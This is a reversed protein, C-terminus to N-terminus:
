KKKRNKPADAYRRERGDVPVAPAPPYGLEDLRRQIAALPLDPNVGLSRLHDRLLDQVIASIKTKARPLLAELAEYLPESVTVTWRCKASPTDM